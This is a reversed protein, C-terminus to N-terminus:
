LAVEGKLAQDGTGTEPKFDSPRRKECIAVTIRVTVSFQM